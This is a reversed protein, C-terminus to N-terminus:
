WTASMHRLRRILRDVEVKVQQYSDQVHRRTTTQRGLRHQLSLRPIATFPGSIAAVSRFLGPRRGGDM